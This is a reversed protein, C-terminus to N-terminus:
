ETSRKRRIVIAQKRRAGGGGGRTRGGKESIEESRESERRRKAEKMAKRGGNWEEKDEIEVKRVYGKGETRESKSVGRKWDISDNKGRGKIGERWMM